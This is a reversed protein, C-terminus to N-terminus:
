KQTRHAWVADYPCACDTMEPEPYTYREGKFSRFVTEGVGKEVM